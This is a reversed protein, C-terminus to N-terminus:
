VNSAGHNLGKNRVRSYRPSAQFPMTFADELCWGAHLRHALRRYPVGLKTAWDKMCLTEGKFTLWRTARTNRVQQAYSAWHCNEPSYPGDNDIRDITLRGLGEPREGMDDIFNQFSDKWRECVFIGRRGYNCFGPDKPNCCRQILSVWIRYTVTKSKGHKLRSVAAREERYCGCSKSEGDRLARFRVIGWKGCDCLCRWHAGKCKKWESFEKVTWRGFRLGTLDKFHARKPITHWAAM